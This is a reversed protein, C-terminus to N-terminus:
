CNLSDPSPKSPAPASGNDDQAESSSSKLIWAPDATERDYREIFDRMWQQETM